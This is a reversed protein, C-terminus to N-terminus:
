RARPAEILELCAGDPDPFFLARLGDIPVQPGMDLTVPASFCEVGHSRLRDYEADIDAVIFAMRFIGVHNAEAYARRDAPSPLRASQQLSITFLDAQGPLALFTRRGGSSGGLQGGSPVDSQTSVPGSTTEVGLVRQYWETSAALDTCTIDVGRFEIASVDGAEFSLRVGDPDTLMTTEGTAPVMFRLGTLGPRDPSEYPVGVPAPVLWELLDVVPAAFPGRHDHLMWADWAALGDLGFGSCDQPAPNTHVSPQLGVVSRYFDLSRTLSTCNVNCHAVSLLTLPSVAGANM